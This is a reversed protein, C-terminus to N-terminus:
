GRRRGSQKIYTTHQEALDALKDLRRKQAPTMDDEYAPLEIELFVSPTEVSYFKTEM